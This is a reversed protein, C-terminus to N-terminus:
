EFTPYGNEGVKWKKWTTSNTTEDELHEEIYQNLGAVVDNSTEKTFAIANADIKGNQEKELYYCNEGDGTTGTGIELTCEGSWGGGILNGANYCNKIVVIKENRIGWWAIGNATRYSVASDLVKITGMNYSNYVTNTYSDTSGIIGGAASGRDVITGLNYSNIVTESMGVGLIGGTGTEGTVNGMNYCGVITSYGTQGCIGGTYQAGNIEAKNWCNQIIIKGWRQGYGVIGGTYKGWTTTEIKGSVGVNSITAGSGASGFLGANLTTYIYINLIENNQGDFNGSFNKDKGIPAFGCDM